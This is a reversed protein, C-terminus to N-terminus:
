RGSKVSPNKNTNVLFPMSIHLHLSQCSLPEFICTVWGAWCVKYTNLLNRRVRDSEELDSEFIEKFNGMKTIQKRLQNSSWMWAKCLNTNSCLFGRSNRITYIFLVKGSTILHWSHHANQFAFHRERPMKSKTFYWWKKDKHSNILKSMWGSVYNMFPVYIDGTLYTASSGCDFMIPAKEQTPCKFRFQGSEVTDLLGFYLSFRSFVCHLLKM